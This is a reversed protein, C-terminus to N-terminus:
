LQPGNQYSKIIMEIDARTLSVYVLKQDQQETYLTMCDVSDYDVNVLPLSSELSTEEKDYHHTLINM